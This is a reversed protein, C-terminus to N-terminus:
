QVGLWYSKRKLCCKKSTKSTIFACKGENRRISLPRLEADDRGRDPKTFYCCRCREWRGSNRQLGVKKGTIKASYFRCWWSCWRNSPNFEQFSTGESIFYYKVVAAVKSKRTLLQQLSRVLHAYTYVRLAPESINHCTEAVFLSTVKNYFRVNLRFSDQKLIQPTM